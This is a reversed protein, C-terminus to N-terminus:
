RGAVGDWAPGRVKLFDDLTRTLRAHHVRLARRLGKNDQVNLMFDLLQQFQQVQRPLRTAFDRRAEVTARPLVQVVICLPLGTLPATLNPPVVGNVLRRGRNFVHFLHSEVEARRKPDPVVWARVCTVEWLDLLRSAIVDSRASALRSLASKRISNGRTGSATAIYFPSDDLDCFAYVGPADPLQGLQQSLDARGSRSQFGTIMRGIIPSIWASDVSKLYGFRGGFWM